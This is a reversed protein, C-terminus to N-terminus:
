YVNTEVESAYKLKTMYIQNFYTKLRVIRWVRVVSYLILKIKLM